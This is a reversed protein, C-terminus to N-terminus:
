TGDSREATDHAGFTRSARDRRARRTTSGALLDVRMRKRRARLFARVEAESEGSTGVRVSHVALAPGAALKDLSAPAEDIHM